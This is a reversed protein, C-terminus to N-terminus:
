FSHLYSGKVNQLFFCYKCLPDPILGRVKQNIKTRSIFENSIINLLIIEHINEVYIALMHASRMFSLLINNQSCSGKLGLIQGLSIEERIKSRTILDIIIIKYNNTIGCMITYSQNICVEVITRIDPFIRFMTPERELELYTKQNKNQKKSIM